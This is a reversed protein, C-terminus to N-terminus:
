FKIAVTGGGKIKLYLTKISHCWSEGDLSVRWEVPLWFQHRGEPDKVWGEQLTNQSVQWNNEHPTDSKGMPGKHLHYGSKGGMGVTCDQDDGPQQSYDLVQGTKLHYTYFPGQWPKIVGTQTEDSFTINYFGLDPLSVRWISDNLGARQNGSIGDVMGEETLLWAVVVITYGEVLLVNGTLALGTIVMGTDIVQSPTQSLFNTITIAGRPHQVVTAMCTNNHSLGIFLNTHIDPELPTPSSPTTSPGDLRWVKLVTWSHSLISPSTPSFQFHHPEWCPIEKLLTYCGSAYKWVRIDYYMWSTAAFLSGDASFCHHTASSSREQLLVKANQIDMITVQKRPYGYEVVTALISIRHTIPSFAKIQPCVGWLPIHFSKVKTHVCGVEYDFIDITWTENWEVIVAIQFSKNHGWIYSIEIPWLLTSSLTKGLSVDHICAIWSYTTQGKLLTAITRGDLSWM